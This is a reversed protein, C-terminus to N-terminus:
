EPNRTQRTRHHRTRAGDFLGDLEEETMGSKRFREQAPAYLEDFTKTRALREVSVAEEILQKAYDSPTIGAAKAQTRLAILVTKPLGSIHITSSAATM